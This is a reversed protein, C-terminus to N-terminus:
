TFSADISASCWPTSSHLASRPFPQARHPVRSSPRRTLIAYKEQQACGTSQLSRNGRGVGWAVGARRGGARSPGVRPTQRRGDARPRALPVCQETGDVGEEVLPVGMAHREIARPVQAVVLEQDDTHVLFGGADRAARHVGEDPGHLPEALLEADVEDVVGRDEVPIALRDPAGRAVVEGLGGRLPATVAPSSRTRCCRESPRPAERRRRPLARPVCRARGRRRRAHDSRRSSGSPVLPRVLVDDPCRRAAM